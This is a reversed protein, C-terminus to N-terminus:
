TGRAADVALVRWGALTHVLTVDHVARGRGSARKLVRGGADVFQYPPLTDTVRIVAQTPEVSVVMVGEIRPSLDQAYASRARMADFAKQDEVHAPGDAVDVEALQDRAGRTFAQARAQDLGAVIARWAAADDGPGGSRSEPPGAEAAPTQEPAGLAVPSQPGPGTPQGPVIVWAIVAALAVLGLVAATLTPIRPLRGWRPLANVVPTRPGAARPADATSADGDPGQRASTRAAPLAPLEGVPADQEGGRLALAAAPGCRGLAVAIRAAPPRLSLEDAVAPALAAAVAGALQPVPGEGPPAPPGLAALLLGALEGVDSAPLGAAGLVGSIGAGTLMPRGGPEILIDEPRVRGHTHGAEHVAALAQFMPVGVTIVEGPGLAARRSLLRALSTAGPVADRVVAIGDVTPAADRVPVLHPHAVGILERAELLARDRVKGDVPLRLMRVVVPAGSRDRGHWNNGTGADQLRHEVVVGPVPQTPDGAIRAMGSGYSPCLVVTPTRPCATSLAM